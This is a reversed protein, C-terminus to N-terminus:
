KKKGKKAPAPGGMADLFKLIQGSDAARGGHATLHKLASTLSSRVAGARSDYATSNVNPFYGGRGKNFISVHYGAHFGKASRAVSVEVECKPSGKFIFTARDPNTCIQKSNWEFDEPTEKKGEWELSEGLEAAEKTAALERNFEEEVQKRVKKPDIKFIKHCSALFADKPDGDWQIALALTADVLLVFPDADKAPQQPHLDNMEGLLDWILTTAAPSFRKAEIEPAMRLIEARCAIEVRKQIEIELIRAENAEEKKYNPIFDKSTSRQPKRFIRQDEPKEKEADRAAELALDRKVLEHVAGAADKALIVPVRGGILKKWPEAKKVGQRLDTEDPSDGLEVFGSNWQLKRGTYDFVKKADDRSMAEIGREPDTVSQSWHEHAKEKKMRFCEPNLCVPNRYADEMDSINLSNHPCDGCEGGGNREGSVEDFFVPVLSEDERDFDVGALSIMCEDRIIRDLLRYPLPALGDIPKLVRKTLDDRVIRSPIKALLRAHSFSIEGNELAVGAPTGLLNLISIRQRIFEETRGIRLGLAALPKKETEGLIKILQKMGEAEELPSLDSRQLNEILQMELVERESLDDRILVPVETLGSLSAARLRCEGSILEYAIGAAIRGPDVSARVLLPNLIGHASISASLESLYEDRFIKRPNTKSPAIQNVPIFSLNIPKSTM